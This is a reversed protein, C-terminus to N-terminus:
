STQTPQPRLLVEYGAAIVTLVGLIISTWMETDQNVARFNFLLPAAVAVIGAVIAVWYEWNSTGTDFARIIAAVLIIAGLIVSSWQANTDEHDTLVFPALILLAGLLGVVWYMRSKM